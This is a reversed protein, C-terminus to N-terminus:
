TYSEILSEIWIRYDRMAVAPHSYETYGGGENRKDQRDHVGIKMPFAEIHIMSARGIFVAITENNQIPSM